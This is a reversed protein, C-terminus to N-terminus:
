EGGLKLKLDNIVRKVGPIRRAIRMAIRLDWDDFVIGRLTAIGDTVTVREDLFYRDSRLATEVQEKVESDPVSLRKGTVVVTNLKDGAQSSVDAALVSAACCTLGVLVVINDRARHQSLVDKIM